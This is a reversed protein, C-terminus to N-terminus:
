IASCEVRLLYLAERQAEVKSDLQAIISEMSNQAGRVCALPDHVRGRPIFDTVLSDLFCDAFETLSGSDCGDEGALAYRFSFMLRQAQGAQALAAHAYNLIVASSLMGGSAEGLEDLKILDEEVSDLCALAERGALVMEGLEKLRSQAATLASATEPTGKVAEALLQAREDELRRARLEAEHLESQAESHKLWAALLVARSRVTEQRTNKLRRFITTLSVQGLGREDFSNKSLMDQYRGIRQQIAAIDQELLASMADLCGIRSMFRGDMDVTNGEM